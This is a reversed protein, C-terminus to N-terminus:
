NKKKLFEKHMVKLYKSKLHCNTKLVYSLSYYHESFITRNILVRELWWIEQKEIHAKFVGKSSITTIHERVIINIYLCPTTLISTSIHLTLQELFLFMQTSHFGENLQQSFMKKMPIQQILYYSGKHKISENNRTTTIWGKHLVHVLKRM